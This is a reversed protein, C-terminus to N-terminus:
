NSTNGESYFVFQGEGTGLYNLQPTQKYDTDTPVKDDLYVQLERITTVGDKNQDARGKLGQILHYTYVSHGDWKPGMVVTEEATGATMIQRGGSKIFTEVQRRTQPPLEGKKHLTGRIGSYCSDVIFLIQKAPILESFSYVEDMSIATPHISQRKGDIPVIYGYPDGTRTQRTDGHGSFYIIVRDDKGVKEPLEQALVTQIHQKTAQKDLISIIHDDAFGLKNILLDRMAKADDVAHPLPKFGNDTKSYSSIGIVVAWSKSKGFVYEALKRLSLGKMLEAKYTLQLTRPHSRVQKTSWAVLKLNNASEKLEVPARLEFEKEGKVSQEYVVQGNIQLVIRDLGHQRQVVKAVVLINPGELVQNIPERLTDGQKLFQVVIEPPLLDAINERTLDVGTEQQIAAVEAQIDAGKIIKAVIEPRKYISAYQAFDYVKNGVRFTVYQDGKPSSVYYNDPTYAVWEGDDFGILTAVLEGTQPNWFRLTGDSSASIVQHGDHGFAVANVEQAHGELIHVLQGTTRDWLRLTNDDSGSLVQSGDPSFAVAQIDSTHGEFTRVLQGTTRDWLSLNKLIGGSLVQTGDPSFAVANVWTPIRNIPKTFTHDLQRTTRDWMWFGDGINSGGGAIVQKGDPSFAVANFWTPTDHHLPFTRDLQGTARDWLWLAGDRGGSLVQTGNPSVAVAMVEEPHGDFTHVLHGTLHEWLRLTRDSSGSLVETGDPTFAVANVEQTHGTFRRVVEGTARDWLRLTHDHYGSVVQAGDPSLAVAQVSSTRGEFTHMLKGTARDWLRLTYDDSGSLVHKGDPSFAVANVGNTHGQFTHVLQGTASDWLRFSHDDSGSLVQSGDPSFAVAQVHSTPGEFTRVLKGTARDWLTLYKRVWSGLVIQTGDPSFAVARPVGFDGLERPFSRVVQWTARDWLRLTYDAGGSLVQTGDPSFALAHIGRLHTNFMRVLQGTARDWLRLDSRHDGSIVQTGDPSFAVSTLPSIHGEFTHVLQGTFRDWLRLTRDRSGSLVQTGDPSVAVAVVEDTHGQFTRVLQGTARDWLRLTRDRSGSLVQTGDPTFAVADVEQTHGSQILIDAEKKAYATGQGFFLVVLIGIIITRPKMNSKESNMEISQANPKRKGM